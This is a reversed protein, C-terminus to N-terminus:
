EVMLTEEDIIFSYLNSKTKAIEFSAHMEDTLALNLIEFNSYADEGENKTGREHLGCDKCVRELAYAFDEIDNGPVYKFQIINQHKCEKQIKEINNFAEEQLKALDDYFKNVVDIAKM